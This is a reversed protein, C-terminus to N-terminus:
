IDVSVLKCSDLFERAAYADDLTRTVSYRFPPLQRQKGQFFRGVKQWNWMLIQKGDPVKYPTQKDEEDDENRIIRSDIRQHIATIPLVIIVPITSDGVRVEYVGGQMKDITSSRSDGGNFIGLLAPDSVVILTPAIARVRQEFAAQIQPLQAPDFRWVKENGKRILPKPVLRYIDTIAIRERPIGCKHVMATFAPMYGASVGFKDTLYLIKGNHPM